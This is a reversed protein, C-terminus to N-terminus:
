VKITFTEGFSFVGCNCNQDRCQNCVKTELTINVQSIDNKLYIDDIIPLDQLEIEIDHNEHVSANILDQKTNFNLSVKKVDFMEWTDLDYAKWDKHLINKPSSTNIYSPLKYKQYWQEELLEILGDNIKEFWKIMHETSNRIDTIQNSLKVNLIVLNDRNFIWLFSKKLKDIERSVSKSLGNVKDLSDIRRSSLPEKENPKKIYAEPSNNITVDSWCKECHKFSGDGSVYNDFWCHCTVLFNDNSNLEKLKDM